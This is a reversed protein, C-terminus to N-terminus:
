FLVKRGKVIYIRGPQPTDVRRGTLDYVAADSDAASGATVGIIGSVPIDPDEIINRFTYWGDAERYAESCGVPVHLPVDSLAHTDSNSVPGFPSKASGRPGCVPPVASMCYIASPRGSAAFCDDGLEKVSSPIVLTEAFRCWMFAEKGINELGEPLSSIAIYSNEFAGNGISRVTSPISFEQIGCDQFLNDPINEIGEPLVAKTLFFCGCFHGEGTLVCGAPVTVEEISSGLFAFSGIEELSEPLNISKLRTSHFAFKGIKRIGDPLVMGKVRLCEEFACDGIEELAAPMKWCDTEFWLCKYFAKAGISRVTSPLEISRLMPIYAFAGDGICTVGEPLIISRLKIGKIVEHEADYQEPRWFARQPVTDNVIRADRLNIASLRGYFTGEWMTTFDADNVPGRVVLSDIEHLDNKVESWLSGAHSLTVERYEMDTQAMLSVTNCLIILLTFFKKMLKFNKLPNLRLTVIFFDNILIPQQM